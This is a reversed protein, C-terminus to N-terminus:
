KPLSLGRAIGPQKNLFGKTVLAKVVSQTAHPNVNFHEAIEAISPAYSYESLFDKIFDFVQQQRETLKGPPPPAPRATSKKLDLNVQQEM